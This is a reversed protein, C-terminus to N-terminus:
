QDGWLQLWRCQRIGSNFGGRGIEVIAYPVIRLYLMLISFAILRFGSGRCALTPNERSGSLFLEGTHISAKVSDYVAFRMMSYTM